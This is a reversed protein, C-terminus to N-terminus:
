RSVRRLNALDARHPLSDRARVIAEELRGRGQVLLQDKLCREVHHGPYTEHAAVTLLEIASLPLDINISIRSRLDGLYECFALWPVDRVTEM